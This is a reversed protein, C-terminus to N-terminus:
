ILLPRALGGVDLATRRQLDDESEEAARGLHRESLCVSAGLVVAAAALGIARRVM